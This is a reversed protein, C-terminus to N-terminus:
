SAKKTPSSNPHNFILLGQDSHKLESLKEKFPVHVKDKVEHEIKGTLPCKHTVISKTMLPQWYHANNTTLLLTQGKEDLQHKLAKIFVKFSKDDLFKEPNELFLYDAEQLLGKVLAAAKRTKSDVKSPLEDVLLISQYLELLSPNHLRHLHDELTFSRTSSVTTPISDLAINERLTLGALLSGEQDVFSFNPPGQIRNLSIYNLFQKLCGSQHNAEEFLIVEPRKFRNM